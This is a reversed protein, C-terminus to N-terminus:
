AYGGFYGAQRLTHSPRLADCLTAATAYAGCTCLTPTARRISAFGLYGLGTLRISAFGLYGLGTLRISAFGLYGLGTLRISAFGLYGLGLLPIM